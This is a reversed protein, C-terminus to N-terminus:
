GKIRYPNDQSGVGELVINSKLYFTPRANVYNSAAAYGFNGKSGVAWMIFRYYSCPSLFWELIGVSMWNYEQNSCPWINRDNVSRKSENVPNYYYNSWVSTCEPNTSAEVYETISMLGINGNWTLLSEEEKEKALGKDGGDYGNYYYIGGVDFSHTDIIDSLVRAPQWSNTTNNTKSNLFTNLFSDMTVSGEAGKSLDLVSNRSYYEYYFNNNGITTGNRKTNSTNGWVNCGYYEASAGNYNCFSNQANKRPGTIKTENTDGDRKDWPINGISDQRIVKITGDDEYSIIRYLESDVKNGDGNEDLWIWNNPTGGRFIFRGEDTTSLYLGSDGSVIPVEVGNRVLSYTCSDVIDYTFNNNYTMKIKKSKDIDNFNEDKINILYKDLSNMDICYSIGNIKEYNNINDEYYDKAADIILERTVDSISDRANNIHKLLIPFLILALVGLITIVGLLEILTFGRKM